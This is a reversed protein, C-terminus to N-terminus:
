SGLLGKAAKMPCDDVPVHVRVIVSVAARIVPLRFAQPRRMLLLAGHPVVRVLVGVVVEVAAPVAVEVAVPVGGVAVWVSVAVAVLAAEFM